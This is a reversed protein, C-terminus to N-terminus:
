SAAPQFAGGVVETERGDHSRPTLTTISRRPSQESANNITQQLTVILGALFFLFMNIMPMITVDQFMGGVLYGAISAVVVLGAHRWLDQARPNKSLEWGAQTWLVLLASFMVLGIMGNNVLISLLVNHQHYGRTTELPLGYGRLSYYPRAAKQYYGFGHGVFPADKVMEYAVIALLPRLQVSKEAEAASLNKDRKMRLLQEKLGAVALGALLLSACLSLVKLWRPTVQWFVIALALLGGIWVSRTLTAYIGAFMVLVAIGYGIRGVRGARLWKVAAVALGITLVIGNASPNLLPGRGRGFFEWHEADAIYKPFVLAYWGRSEFFGTIALYLGLTLFATELRRLDIDGVTAVRAVGYIMAPLLVYFIWTGLPSTKPPADGGFTSALVWIVYAAVVWDSKTLQPLSATSGRLSFFAVVCLVVFLIRDLSILLPGQISFFAPGFVTGIILVMACLLPLRAREVLPVLWVSIGILFLAGLFM